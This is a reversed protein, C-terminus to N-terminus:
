ARAANFNGAPDRGVRTLLRATMDRGKALRSFAVAANAALGGGGIYSHTAYNRTGPAPYTDTYSIYDLCAEGVCVLVGPGESMGRVLSPAPRNSAIGSECGASGALWGALWGICGRLWRLLLLSIGLVSQTDRSVRVRVHVIRM